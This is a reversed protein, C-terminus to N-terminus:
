HHHGDEPHGHDKHTSEATEGSEQHQAPPEDTAPRSGNGHRHGHGDDAPLQKEAASILAQYDSPSANHMRKLFAVLAWLAEDEHTPGFAPMGTMRIGNKVVWFAEAETKHQMLDTLRPPPPNLGQHVPTDSLGPPTHCTMCMNKFNRTGKLILERTGLHGPPTIDDARSAVSKHYTTHLFWGLWEPDDYRASVNFVGGLALGVTIAVVILLGLGVSTLYRLM